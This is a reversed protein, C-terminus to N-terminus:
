QDGEIHKFTSYGARATANTLNVLSLRSPDFRVVAQPPELTVRVDTVGDLKKLSTTVTAVCGACTMGEVDLVIQETPGLSQSPTPARSAIRGAVYPYAFLGLILVLALWLAAKNIRGSHPAACYSGEKCEEPKPKRYVRYFGFALFGLAVLMFFPRYPELVKLNGVWAGGIGLALLVLPGVCCISAAVAAAIASFLSWHTKHKKNDQVNM